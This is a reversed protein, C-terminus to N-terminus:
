IYKSNSVKYYGLIRHKYHALPEIVVRTKHTTHIMMGGGIYVGVHLPEGHVAIEIICNIEPNEIKIHPISAHLKEHLEDRNELNDYFADELTIGNRRLVEIALGYCDFGEKKNRGHVKFKVGLLDEYM